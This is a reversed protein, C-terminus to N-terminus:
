VKNEIGTRAGTVVQTADLALTITANVSSIHDHAVWALLLLLSGSGWLLRMKINQFDVRKELKLTM